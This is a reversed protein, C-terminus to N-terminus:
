INYYKIQLIIISLFYTNYLMKQIIEMKYLVMILLILNYYAYLLLILHMLTYFKYNIFLVHVIHAPPYDYVIVIIPKNITPILSAIINITGTQIFNIFINNKFLKILFITKQKHFILQLLDQFNNKICLFPMQMHM